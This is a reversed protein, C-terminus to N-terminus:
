EKNGILATRFGPLYAFSGSRQQVDPSNIISLPPSPPKTAADMVGKIGASIWSAVENAERQEPSLPIRTQEGLACMKLISIADPIDDKRGKNKREGTYLIFQKLMEDNWMASAQFWLRNNALLIEVDKIRNFKADPDTKTNQYSIGSVDTNL